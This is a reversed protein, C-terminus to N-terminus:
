YFTCTCVSTDAGATLSCEDLVSSDWWPWSWDPTHLPHLLQEPAWCDWSLASSFGEPQQALHRWPSRWVSYSSLYNSPKYVLRECRCVFFVKSASHKISCPTYTCFYFPLWCAWINKFSRLRQENLYYHSWQRAPLLLRRMTIKAKEHSCCQKENNKCQLSLKLM